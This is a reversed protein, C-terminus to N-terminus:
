KVVLADLPVSWEPRLYYELDNQAYFMDASRLFLAVFRNFDYIATRLEKHSSLVYGHDTPKVKYWSGDDHRPIWSAACVDYRTKLRYIFIQAAGFSFEFGYYGKYSYATHLEGCMTYLDFDTHEFESSM